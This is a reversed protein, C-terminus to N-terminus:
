PAPTFILSILLKSDRPSRRMSPGPILMEGANRGIKLAGMPPLPDHGWQISPPVSARLTSAAQGFARLPAGGALGPSNCTQAEGRCTTMAVVQSTPSLLLPSSSHPTSVFLCGVWHFCPCSVQCEGSSSVGTAALLCM